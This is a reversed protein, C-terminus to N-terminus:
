LLPNAHFSFATRPEFLFAFGALVGVSWFQLGEKGVDLGALDIGDDADLDVTDATRKQIKIFHNFKKLRL